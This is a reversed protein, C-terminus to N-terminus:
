LGYLRQSLVLGQIWCQICEQVQYIQRELQKRYIVCCRLGCIHLFGSGFRNIQAAEKYKEVRCYLNSRHFRIAKEVFTFLNHM